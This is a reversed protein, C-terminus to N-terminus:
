KILMDPRGKAKALANWLEDMLGIEEGKKGMIDCKLNYVYRDGSPDPFRTLGCEKAFEAFEWEREM